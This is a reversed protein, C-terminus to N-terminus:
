PQVPSRVSPDEVLQVQVLKPEGTAELPTTWTIGAFAPLATVDLNWGVARGEGSGGTAFNDGVPGGWSSPARLQVTTPRFGSHVM